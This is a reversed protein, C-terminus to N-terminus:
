LVGLEVVPVLTVLPLARVQRGALAVRGQHGFLERRLEVVLGFILARRGADHNIIDNPQTHPQGVVGDSRKCGLGLSVLGETREEVHEYVITMAPVAGLRRGVLSVDVRGALGEELLQAFLM